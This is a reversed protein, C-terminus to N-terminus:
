LGGLRVWQNGQSLTNRESRVAKEQARSLPSPRADHGHAGRIERTIARLAEKSSLLPQGKAMADGVLVWPAREEEKDQTSADNAKRGRM